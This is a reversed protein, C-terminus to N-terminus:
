LRAEIDIFEETVDQGKITEVVVRSATKRIEDLSENFKESPIRISMTVTDRKVSTVDTGRQVSEIVFGGKGEAIATIKQQAVEPEDSELSLEANRIIKREIPKAAQSKDAADLSVQDKGATRESTGATKGDASAEPLKEQMEQRAAPATQTKSLGASENPSLGSCAAFFVTSLSLFILVKFKM